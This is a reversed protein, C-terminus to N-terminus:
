GGGRDVKGENREVLALKAQAVFIGNNEEQTKVRKLKQGRKKVEGGEEMREWGRVNSGQHRSHHLLVPGAQTGAKNKVMVTKVGGLRSQNKRQKRNCGPQKMCGFRSEAQILTINGKVHVTLAHPPLCTPFKYIQRVIKANETMMMDVM